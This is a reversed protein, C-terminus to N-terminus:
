EQGEETPQDSAPPDTSAAPAAPDAQKTFYTDWAFDEYLAAVGAHVLTREGLPEGLKITGWKVAAPPQEPCPSTDASKVTYSGITVKSNSEDLTFGAHSYCTIDGAVYVIQIETADPGPKAALAWPASIWGSDARGAAVLVEDLGEPVGGDEAPAPLVYDLVRGDDKVPEGAQAEADSSACGVLAAGAALLVSLTKTRM